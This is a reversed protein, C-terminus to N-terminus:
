MPWLGGCVYVAGHSLNDYWLTAYYCTVDYLAMSYLAGCRAAGRRAAGCQGVLSQLMRTEHGM